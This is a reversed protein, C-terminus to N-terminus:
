KQNKRLRSRGPAVCFITEAGSALLIKCAQGLTMGSSVVDDVLLVVEGTLDYKPNAAFVAQVNKKREEATLKKQERSEGCRLILPLCACGLKAALARALLEAQDHGYKLKAKKTRPTWTVTLIEPSLSRMALERKVGPALQAAAFDAARRLRTKKMRLIMRGVATEATYDGLCILTEVGAERLAAPMCRCDMAPLSCANCLTLKEREWEARCAPCLVDAGLYGRM